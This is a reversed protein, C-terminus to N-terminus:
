CAYYPRGDRTAGHKREVLLVFFDAIQGAQLESLRRLPPKASKDRMSRARPTGACELRARRLGGFLICRMSLVKTRRGSGCGHHDKGTRDRGRLPIEVPPEKSPERGEKHNPRSQAGDNAEACHPAHMGVFVLLVEFLRVPEDKTVSAG